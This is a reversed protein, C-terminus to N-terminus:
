YAIVPLLAINRPRTEAGGADESTFSPIDVTHDHAPEASTYSGRGDVGPDYQINANAIGTDVFGYRGGNIGAGGGDIHNHGGDQSSTVAPPDVDHAHTQIEQAQASGLARGTDVGRGDDLGRLFEGRLDPLNFTTSGDGVGYTTGIVAFLAAYTTRSVAAGNAKLYGVPPTLAALFFVSGVPVTKGVSAASAAAEAAKTTATTAAASATGADTSAESAKTTATAAAASATGADTSAESAKTTATTASAAAASASTAAEAAKLIATAESAAAAAASNAADSAVSAFDVLLDWRGSALDNAFVSSTHVAVCIYFADTEFVTQGVTYNVATAWATPPEFNLTIGPGLTEPMVSANALKGDSRTIGKVFNLLAIYADRLEMLDTDLEQGPFSGDGLAQEKATYSTSLSPPDPYSM